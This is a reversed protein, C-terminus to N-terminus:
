EQIQIIIVRTIIRLTNRRIKSKPITNQQNDVDNQDIGLKLFIKVLSSQVKFCSDIKYKKIVHNLIELFVVRTYSFCTFSIRRDIYSNNM